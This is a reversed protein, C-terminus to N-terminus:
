RWSRIRSVAAEHELGEGREIESIAEELEKNYEEVSVSMDLIQTLTAELKRIALEDMQVIQEIVKLKRTKLDM